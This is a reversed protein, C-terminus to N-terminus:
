RLDKSQDQEDNQLDLVETLSSRFKPNSPYLAIARKILQAAEEFKGDEKMQMAYRYYSRYHDPDLEIAREYAQIRLQRTETILGLLSIADASGRDLKHAIDIANRARDELAHREAAPVESADLKDLIAQALGVHAHVYNPDLTIAREFEGSLFAEFADRNETGMFDTRSMVPLGVAQLLENAIANGTDISRGPDLEYSQSWTIEKRAIDLLQIDITNSEDLRGFALGMVRLDQGFEDLDNAYEDPGLRVLTLGDANELGAMLPLYLSDAGSLPLVALSNPMPEFVPEPQREPVILWSLGSTLLLGLVIAAAVTKHDGRSSDITWSGDEQIQVIWALAMTLPFGVVFVIALFRFTWAPAQFQELLFNLIEAGLWAGAIYAGGVQLVRRRKLEALFGVVPNSTKPDSTRPM